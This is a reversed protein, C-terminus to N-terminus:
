NIPIQTPKTAHEPALAITLIGNELKVGDVVINHNLTWSRTWSRHALQHVLYEGSSKTDKVGRVELRNGTLSVELEERSFGSVAIEIVYHDGDSSRIINYPPYGSTQRNFLNDFGILTQYLPDILSTTKM